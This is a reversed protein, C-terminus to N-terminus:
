RPTSTIALTETNIVPMQQQQSSPTSLSCDDTAVRMREEQDVLTGNDNDHDGKSGPTKIHRTEENRLRLSVQANGTSGCSKEDLLSECLHSSRVDLM